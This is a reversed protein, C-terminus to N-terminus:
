PKTTLRRLLMRSHAAWIFGETVVPDREYDSRSAGVARVGRDCWPRSMDGKTRRGRHVGERQWRGASAVTARRVATMVLAVIRADAAGTATARRHACRSSLRGWTTIRKSPGAEVVTGHEVGAIRAWLRANRV